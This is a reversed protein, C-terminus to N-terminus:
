GSLKMSNPFVRHLRPLSGM